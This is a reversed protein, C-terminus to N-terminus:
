LHKRYKRVVEGVLPLKETRVLLSALFFLFIFYTNCLQQLLSWVDNNASFVPKGPSGLFISQFIILVGPNLMNAYKDLFQIINFSICM